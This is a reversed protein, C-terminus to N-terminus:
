SSGQLSDMSQIKFKKKANELGEPKMEKYRLPKVIQFPHIQDGSSGKLPNGKMPQVSM